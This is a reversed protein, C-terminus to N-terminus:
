EYRLAEAPAIRGAQMAPLWTMILAAVNTLLAIAILIVWPVIFETGSLGSDESTLLKQALLLGLATGAFGGVGVVFLTEILFSLTVTRRQYGLARMVGIQQRREVVSRFAIVGVAAIGVLLGLGMFGEIIYLFGSEMAQAEELEDHISNGEVGRSLMAAEIERATAAAQNSDGLAVYYSTSATQGYVRDITEQAGFMGYLSGITSDIVGIVTVQHMSGDAPSLLEVQIPAFTKDESALGTLVFADEDAGLNGDQPLAFADVV